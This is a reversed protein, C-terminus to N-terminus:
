SHEPLPMSVPPLNTQAHWSSSGDALTASVYESRASGITPPPSIRSSTLGQEFTAVNLPAAQRVAERAFVSCLNRDNRLLMAVSAIEPTIVM